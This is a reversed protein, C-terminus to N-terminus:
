MAVMGKGAMSALKNSVGTTTAQSPLSQTQGYTLANATANAIDAPSTAGNINNTQNINISPANSSPIFVKNGQADTAGAIAGSPLQTGGVFTTGAADTQPTTSVTFGGGYQLSNAQAIAAANLAALEAAIQAITQGLGQLKATTADVLNSVANDFAYQASVLSDQLTSQAKALAENLKQNSAAVAQDRTLQANAMTDAYTQQAKNLSDQFAGQQATLSVQLDTAVKNYQDTLAQTALQGGSNMQTALTNLGNASIDQIQGFLSQIQDTTQPAANLLVQAMQDGLLTGQAVVQQIFTQSYGKGALAAADQQLIQAAKLQAQLNQALGTATGGGYGFFSEAMNISTAKAFEDTLLKESQQVISLQKDAAQQQLKAIADHNAVQAAQQAELLTRSAKLSADDYTQQIKALEDRSALQAVQSAKNFADEAKAIATLHTEVLKEYSKQYSALETQIAKAQAAASKLTDGGTVGGTIGTDGPTAGSVVSQTGGLFNPLSIKKNKLSDLSNGFNDIDKKASQFFNGTDNIGTNILNLADKAAGGVIPLHSLAELLLRMPGTVIKMIATVVDGIAGILWGFAEVGVKAVEITIDRFTKSHNWLLVFGAALAAVALVILGIPNADMVANLAAMAGTLGETVAIEEIQVGKLLLTVAYYAEQALQVAKTVAEYTKFAAFGAALVGFFLEFAGINNKVFDVLPKLAANYFDGVVKMVDMFVQILRTIVPFLVNGISVAIENFREKLVAIEGAFTHTYATAQGGIKANLEDFAKAIAQNKPLSSDLTIGLEKFAKVSGQTGRALTTAATNLDEHKYRALDAAMSMLRTSESVSGTATVLTGMAQAAQAHTFGLAAYSKVNEDVAAKNATTAVGANQMATALRNQEVQADQVALNMESLTKELGMVGQTLLNGGFVGLMLDKFERLKGGTREAETAISQLGEKARTVGATVGTSDIAVTVTLGPIEGAM